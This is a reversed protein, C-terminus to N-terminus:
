HVRNVLYLSERRSIVDYDVIGRQRLDRLVRDASAPAVDGIQTTVYRRLEDAHFTRGVHKRCFHILASAIRSSVRELEEYQGM